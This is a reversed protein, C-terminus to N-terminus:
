SSITYFSLKDRRALLFKVFCKFAGSVTLPAENIKTIHVLGVCCLNIDQYFFNKYHKRM